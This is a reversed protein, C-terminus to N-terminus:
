SQLCVKGTSISLIDCVKGHSVAKQQKEVAGALSDFKMGNFWNDNCQLQYMHRSNNLKDATTGNNTLTAPM